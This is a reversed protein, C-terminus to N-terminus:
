QPEENKVIEIKITNINNQIAIATDPAYIGNMKALMDLAKLAVAVDKRSGTNFDQILLLLETQIFQKNVDIAQQRVAFRREIENQIKPKNLLHCGYALDKWGAKKTATISNDGAVIYQVFLLEKPSLKEKIEDPVPLGSTDTTLLQTELEKSKLM